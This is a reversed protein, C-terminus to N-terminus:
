IKMKKYLFMPYFHIEENLLNEINRGCGCGFDLARKGEWFSPNDVIDKLLIDWYEPDDNHQKHNQAPMLHHDKEFGAKQKNLFHAYDFYWRASEEPYGVSTPDLIGGIQDSYLGHIDLVTQEDVDNDCDHDSERTSQNGVEQAQGQDEPRRM